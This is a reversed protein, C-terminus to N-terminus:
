SKHWHGFLHLLPCTMIDPSPPGNVEVQCSTLIRRGPSYVDPVGAHRGQQLRRHAAGARPIHYRHNGLSCIPRAKRVSSHIDGGRTRHDTCLAVSRFLLCGFLMRRNRSAPIRRRDVTDASGGRPGPFVVCRSRRSRPRVASQDCSFPSRLTSRARPRAVCWFVAHGDVALVRRMERLAAKRDSFFQLGQQCLVPDFAKDPLDLAIADGRLWETEAGAPAPLARAVDLIAPSIDLAVGRGEIGIMPAARRAVIGTGCALDLIRQGQRPAARDLLVRSFPEAIAPRLYQEYAKAPIVNPSDNM